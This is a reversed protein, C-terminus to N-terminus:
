GVSEGAERTRRRTLNDASWFSPATCGLDERFSRLQELRALPTSTTGGRATDSLQAIASPNPQTLQAVRPGHRLENWTAPWYSSRILVHHLARMQAIGLTRRALGWRYRETEVDHRDDPVPTERARGSLTPTRAHFLCLRHKATPWCPRTCARTIRLSRTLHVGAARRSEM